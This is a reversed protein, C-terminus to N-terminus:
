KSNNMKDQFYKHMSIDADSECKQSCYIDWETQQWKDPTLDKKCHECKTKLAKM